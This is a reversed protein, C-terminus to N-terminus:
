SAMDFVQFHTEDTLVGERTQYIVDFFTPFKATLGITPPM